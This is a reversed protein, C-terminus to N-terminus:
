LQGFAKGVAILLLIHDPPTAMGVKKDIFNHQQKKSKINNGPVNFLSVYSWKAM